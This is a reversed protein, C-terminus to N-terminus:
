SLSLLYCTKDLQSIIEDVINQLESSKIDVRIKRFNATHLKLFEVINTVDSVAGTSIRFLSVSKQQCGLYCEVLNDHLESVTDYLEGLAVHSAYSKTAWHFLKVQNLLNFGDEIIRKEM